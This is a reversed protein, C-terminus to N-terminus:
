RKKKKWGGRRKKKGGKRKRGGSGGLSGGQYARYAARGRLETGSADVFVREGTAATLWRGDGGGGDAKSRKGSASGTGARRKGRGGGSSIAAALEQLQGAPRGVDAAAQHAAASEATFQKAYLVHVREGNRPDFGGALAAVPVFDPLLTWWPRAAASTPGAGAAGSGRAEAAAAGAGHTSHWPPTQLTRRAGLLEGLGSGSRRLQPAAGGSILDPTVAAALRKAIGRGGSDTGASGTRVAADARQLRRSAPTPRMAGTGWPAAPLCGDSDEIGEASEPSEIDDMGEDEDDLAIPVPRAAAGSFRAVADLATAMSAPTPRAGCGPEARAVVRVLSVDNDDDDDAAATGHSRRDAKGSADGSGCAGGRCLAGLARLGTAPSAQALKGGGGSQPGGRTRTEGPLWAQAATVALMPAEQNLRDHLPERPSAESPAGGVATMRAAAVREALHAADCPRAAVEGSVPPAACPLLSFSPMALSGGDDDDDDDNDTSGSRCDTRRDGGTSSAEGARILRPAGGHDSAGGDACAPLAPRAADGAAPKQRVLLEFSPAGDDDDQGDSGDADDDDNGADGDNRAAHRSLAVASHSGVGPGATCPAAQGDPLRDRNGGFPAGMLNFSPAPSEAEAETQEEEEDGDEDQINAKCGGCHGADPISGFATGASSRCIAGPLLTFSPLSDGGDEDEDTDGDTEHRDGDSGARAAAGVDAGHRGGASVQSPHQEAPRANGQPLGFSVKTGAADCGGAAHPRTAAAAASTGPRACIALPSTIVPGIAPQPVLSSPTGGALAPGGQPQGSRQSLSLRSPRAVRAGCLPAANGPALAADSPGAPRALRPMFAAPWESLQESPPLQPPQPPLTDTRQSTDPQGTGPQSRGRMGREDRRGRQASGTVNGAPMCAESRLLAVGSAQHQGTAHEEPPRPPAAHSHESAADLGQHGAAPLLDFLPPAGDSADDDDGSGSSDTAPILGGTDVEGARWADDPAGREVQLGLVSASAWGCQREAFPRCATGAGGASGPKPVVNADLMLNSSRPLPISANGLLDFSPVTGHVSDDDGDGDESTSGGPESEVQRRGPSSSGLAGCRAMHAIATGGPGRM